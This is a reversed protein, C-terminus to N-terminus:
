LSRLDFSRRIEVQIDVLLLGPTEVCFALLLELFVYMMKREQSKIMSKLKSVHHHDRENADCGRAQTEKVYIM